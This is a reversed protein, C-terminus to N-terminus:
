ASSSTAMARRSQRPAASAGSAPPRMSARARSRMSAMRARAPPSPPTSSISRSYESEVLSPRARITSASASSRTGSLWVASRSISSLSPAPRNRGGRSSTPRQEEDVGGGPREADGGADDLGALRRLAHEALEGLASPSGPRARRWAAPWARSPCGNRARGSWRPPGPARAPALVEVAVGEVHQALAGAGGLVGAAVEGGVVGGDVRDAARGAVLRAGVPGADRDLERREM